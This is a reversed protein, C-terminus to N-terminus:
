LRFRDNLVPDTVRYLSFFRIEGQVAKLIKRNLFRRRNNVSIM